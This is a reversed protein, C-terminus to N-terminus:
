YKECAEMTNRSIVDSQRSFQASIEAAMFFWIVHFHRLHKQPPKHWQSYFLSARGIWVWVSSKREPLSLVSVTLENPVSVSFSRFMTTDGSLVVHTCTEEHIGADCKMIRQPSTVHFVRSDTGTFSRHFLM